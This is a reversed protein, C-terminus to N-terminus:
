YTVLVNPLAGRNQWLNGFVEGNALTLPQLLIKALEPVTM